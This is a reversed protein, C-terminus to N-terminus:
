ARKRMRPVLFVAAAILLIVVVVIAIIATTSLGGSPREVVTFQGELGAFAVDYTGLDARTVTFVLDQTAGPEVTVTESNDLQGNIYLSANYSGTGDGINTINVSISVQQNPQVQEPSINLNSVSFSAEGEAVVTVYDPKTESDTAGVDDTVTLAVTYIGPATYIHSPNEATSTAGDGFDWEYTYPPTGGSTKDSFDVSAALGTTPTATFDAHLAGSASIELSVDLTQPDNTAGPDSITISGHYSGTVMGSTNVSVGVTNTDHVGTSSGSTPELSLWPTADSATWELTGIGSNWIELTQDPPRDGGEVASFSLSHPRFAIIPATAVGSVRVSDGGWQTVAIQTGMNDFLKGNSLSIDSTSGPLGIVHLHIEALYGSGTIGAVGPMNGLVEVIGQTEPPLFSWMAVPVATSGIVGNSVDTVEIVGPDYSIDFQFSDLDTVETISVTAVFESGSDVPEDPAAISVTVNNASALSLPFLALVLSFIAVWGLFRKFQSM